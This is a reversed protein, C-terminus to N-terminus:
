STDAVNPLSAPGHADQSLWDSEPGIWEWRVAAAFAGSLISHIQRITAASM